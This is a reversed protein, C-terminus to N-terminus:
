LLCKFVTDHLTDNSGKKIRELITKRLKINQLYIEPDNELLYSHIIIIITKSLESPSIIFPIDPSLGFLQIATKIDIRLFGSEVPTVLILLHIGCCHFDPLPHRNSTNLIIHFKSSEFLKKPSALSDFSSRTIFNMMLISDHISRINKSIEVDEGNIQVLHSAKQEGILGFFSWFSQSPPHESFVTQSLLSLESVTIDLHPVISLMDYQKIFQIDSPIVNGIEGDKVNKSIGLKILTSVVKEGFSLSNNTYIDYVFAGVLTRVVMVFSSHTDIFSVVLNGIAIHSCSDYSNIIAKIRDSDNIIFPSANIIFVLLDVLIIVIPDYISEKLTHLIKTIESSLNESIPISSFVNILIILEQTEVENTMSQILEIMPLKSLFSPYLHSVHLLFLLLSPARIYQSFNTEIAKQHQAILCSKYIYFRYPSLNQTKSLKDLLTYVCKPISRNVSLINMLFSPTFKPDFTTYRNGIINLYRKGYNLSSIPYHCIYLTITEAFERALIDSHKYIRSFCRNLVSCFWESSPGMDTLLMLRTFEFMETPSSVKFLKKAVIPMIFKHSPKPPAIKEELGFKQNWIKIFSEIFVISSSLSAVCYFSPDSKGVCLGELFRSIISQFNKQWISNLGTTAISVSNLFRYSSMLFQIDSDYEMLLNFSFSFLSPHYEPNTLNKLLQISFEIIIKIVSQSIPLHQSCFKESLMDVARRYYSSADENNFLARLCNIGSLVRGNIVELNERSCGLVLWRMILDYSKEFIVGEKDPPLCICYIFVEELWGIQEVSFSALGKSISNEVSNVSLLCIRKANSAKFHHLTPM